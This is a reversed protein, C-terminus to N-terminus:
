SGRDCEAAALSRCGRQWRQKAMTPGGFHTAVVNGDDDFLTADPVASGWDAGNWTYIQVGRAFGRFHVKHGEPVAITDPVEPARNDDALSPAAGPMGSNFGSFVLLAFSSVLFKNIVKKV